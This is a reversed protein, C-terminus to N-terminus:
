REYRFVGTLLRRWRPTDIEEVHAHSQGRRISLMMGPEVVLGVHFKLGMEFLCVDFSQADKLEVERWCGSGLEGTLAVRDCGDGAVVGSHLPVEIGREEIWPLVVMGWCDCGSWDRGGERFSVKLYKTSWHTM